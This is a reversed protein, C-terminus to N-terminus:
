LGHRDKRAQGTKLTHHAGCLAQGNAPDFPLGGDKLEVIHDAFLRNEPSRKGCGPAQCRWGANQMVKLRWAKHEPSNYHDDVKKPGTDLFTSIPTLLTNITKLAM